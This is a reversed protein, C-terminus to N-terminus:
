KAYLVPYLRIAAMTNVDFFRDVSACYMSFSDFVSCLSETSYDKLNYLVRGDADLLDAKIVLKERKGPQKKVFVTGHIHIDNEANKWCSVDSIEVNLTEAVQKQIIVLKSLNEM